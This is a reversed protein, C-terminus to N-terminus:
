RSALWTARDLAFFDTDVRGREITEEPRSDVYSMGAKELVRISRANDPLASASMMELSLSDFAFDIVARAAETAYGHGWYPEGVWYGLAGTVRDPELSLDMSGVIAQDELRIMIFPWGMAAAREQHSREVWAVAHNVRYPFPVRVLWRAIDWSGILESIRPADAVTPSRLLLRETDIRHGAVVRLRPLIRLRKM